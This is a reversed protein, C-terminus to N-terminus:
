PPPLARDLAYSIAARGDDITLHGGLVGQSVSTLTSVLVIAERDPDISSPARGGSQAACLLDAVTDLAPRRRRGLGVEVGRQARRV